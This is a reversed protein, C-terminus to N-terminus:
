EKLVLIAYAAAKLPKERAQMRCPDARQEGKTAAGRGTPM